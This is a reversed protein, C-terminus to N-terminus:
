GGDLNFEIKQVIVVRVPAGDKKAPKFRWKKVAEVAATAFAADTASVAQIEETRGKENIIFIVDASGQVRARSWQFPYQPPPLKVATAKESVEGVKYYTGTLKFENKVPVPM